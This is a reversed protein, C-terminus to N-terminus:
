LHLLLYDNVILKNGSSDNGGCNDADFLYLFLYIFIFYIYKSTPADRQPRKKKQTGPAISTVVVIM